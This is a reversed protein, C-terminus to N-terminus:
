HVTEGSGNEEEAAPQQAAALARKRGEELDRALGESVTMDVKTRQAYVDPALAAMLRFRNETRLRARQVTDHNVLVTKGDESLQTDNRSDDAIEIVDDSWAHPAHKRAAEYAEAFAENERTWRWVTQRTPMDPDRCIRKLTEGLAIRECIREALGDDYGAPRQTEHASNAHPSPASDNPDIAAQAARAAELAALKRARRKPQGAM